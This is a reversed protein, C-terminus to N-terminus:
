PMEIYNKFKVIVSELLYPGGERWDTERVLMGNTIYGHIGATNTYFNNSVFLMEGGAGLNTATFPDELNLNTGGKGLTSVGYVFPIPLPTHGFHYSIWISRSYVAQGANTSQLYLAVIKQSEFGSFEYFYYRQSYNNNVFKFWGGTYRDFFVFAPILTGAKGSLVINTYADGEITLRFQYEVPTPDAPIGPTCSLLAALVASALATRISKPRRKSKLSAPDGARVKEINFENM